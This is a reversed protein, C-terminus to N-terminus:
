NELYDVVYKWASDIDNCLLAYKINDLEEPEECENSIKGIVPMLWDWSSHYKLEDTNIYEGSLPHETMHLQSSLGMKEAILKNGEVINKMATFNTFM